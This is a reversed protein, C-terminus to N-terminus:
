IGKIIAIPEPFGRFVLGWALIAVIAVGYATLAFSWIPARKTSMRMILFGLVISLVLGVSAIQGELSGIGISVGFVVGSIISSMSVSLRTDISKLALREWLAYVFPMSFFAPLWIWHSLNEDLFYAVKASDGQTNNMDMVNHIANAAFHIGHGLAYVALVVFSLIIVRGVTQSNITVLRFFRYVICVYLGVVIPFSLFLELIDGSQVKMDMLTIPTSIMSHALFSVTTVIGFLVVLVHIRKM